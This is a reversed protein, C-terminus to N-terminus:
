IVTSTANLFMSMKGLCGLLSLGPQQRPADLIKEGPGYPIMVNYYTNVGFAAANNTADPM